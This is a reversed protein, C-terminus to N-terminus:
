PLNIETKIEAFRLRSYSVNPQVRKLPISMLLLEMNKNAGSQKASYIDSNSNGIVLLNNNSDPFMDYAFENKKGGARFSNKIESLDRNLSVTYVDYTGRAIDSMNGTVPPFMLSATYGTVFVDNKRTSVATVYEDNTGGLYTIATVATLAADFRILLIENLGGQYINQAAGPYLPNAAKRDHAQGAAYVEGSENIAIGRGYQYHEAGFYTGAKLERLNRDFRALVIDVSGNYEPDFADATTPFSASNTNGIIYVDGDPALAMGYLHDDGGDGGVYTAASIENLDASLKMVFGSMGLDWPGNGKEPLTTMFGNNTVPFDDSATSGTLYVSGEADVEIDRVYDHNNGAIVRSSVIRSLDPSLETIFINTLQGAKQQDITQPFDDSTTKGAVYIRNGPSVDVAYAKDDKSGGIVASVLRKEAIFYKGIIVDYDAKKREEERGPKHSFDLSLNTSNSFGAFIINGDDDTALARGYSAGNGSFVSLDFAQSQQGSNDKSCSVLTLVMISLFIIFRMKNRYSLLGTHVPFVFGFKVAVKILYICWLDKDMFEEVPM